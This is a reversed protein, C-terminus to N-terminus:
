YRGLIVTYKGLIERTYAHTERTYRETIDVQIKRTDDQRIEWTDGQYRGLIEM